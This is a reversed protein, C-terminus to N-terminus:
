EVDTLPIRDGTPQPAAFMEGAHRHVFEGEVTGFGAEDGRRFRVWKM